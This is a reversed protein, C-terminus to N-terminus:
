RTGAEIAWHLDDQDQKWYNKIQRRTVMGDEKWNQVIEPPVAEWPVPYGHWTGDETPKAEFAIGEATAFRRRGGEDSLAREFLQHAQTAEWDHAFPDNRYGGAATIHTWEPCLTGKREGTPRNKHKQSGRYLTQPKPMENM